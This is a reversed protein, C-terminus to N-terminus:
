RAAVSERRHLRTLPTMSPSLLGRSSTQGPPRAPGFFTANAAANQVVGFVNGGEAPYYASQFHPDMPMGIVTVRGTPGFHVQAPQLKVHRVHQM